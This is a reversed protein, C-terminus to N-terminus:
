SDTLIKCTTIYILLLCSMCSLILFVFLEFLFFPLHISSRFLSKELSSICIVLLCMSFHQVDRMLLPICMLVVILYWRVCTLIAIMLVDITKLYVIDLNTIHSSFAIAGWELVRAQFSGHISSGPPSCDMPDSLTPCSQAVESKSKVKM